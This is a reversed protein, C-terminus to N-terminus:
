RDYIKRETKVGVNCFGYRNLALAGLTGGYYDVAVIPNVQIPDTNTNAGKYFDM